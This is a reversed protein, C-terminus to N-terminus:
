VIPRKNTLLYGKPYKAKCVHFVNELIFIMKLLNLEM